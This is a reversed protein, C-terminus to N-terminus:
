LVDSSLPLSIVNIINTAKKERQRAGSEEQQNIKSFLSVTQLQEDKQDLSIDLKEIENRSVKIQIEKVTFGVYEATLTYEGPTINNFVYLGSNDSITQSTTNNLFLVAGSLPIGTNTNIIKGRIGTQSFVLLNSSLLMLIFVISKM